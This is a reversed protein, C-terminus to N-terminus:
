SDTGGPGGAGAARAGGDVVFHSVLRDIWRQLDFRRRDPPDAPQADLSRLRAQLTSVKISRRAAVSSSRTSTSSRAASRQITARASNAATLLRTFLTVDIPTWVPFQSQRQPLRQNIRSSRRPQSHGM